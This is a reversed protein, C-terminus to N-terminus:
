VRPPFVYEMLVCVDLYPMGYKSCNDTSKVFGQKEYFQLPEKASFVMIKECNKRACMKKIGDMTLRGHGQKQFDTIGVGLAEIVAFHGRTRKERETRRAFRIIAGGTVKSTKGCLLYEYDRCHMLGTYNAVHTPPSIVKDLCCLMTSILKPYRTFAVFRRQGKNNHGEIDKLIEFYPDEKPAGNVAMKRKEFYKRVFADTGVKTGLQYGSWHGNIDEQDLEQENEEGNQDVENDSM